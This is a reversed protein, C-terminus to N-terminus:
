QGEQHGEGALPRSGGIGAAPRGMVLSVAYCRLRLDLESFLFIETLPTRSNSKVRRDTDSIKELVRPLRALAAKMGILGQPGPGIHDRRESIATSIAPKRSAREAFPTRSTLSRVGYSRFRDAPAVSLCLSDCSGERGNETQVYEGHRLRSLDTSSSDLGRIMSADSRSVTRMGVRIIRRRHLPGFGQRRSM